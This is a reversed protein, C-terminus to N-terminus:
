RENSERDERAHKGHRQMAIQFLMNRNHWDLKGIAISPSKVWLDSKERRYDPHVEGFIDDVFKEGSTNYLYCSLAMMPDHISNNM